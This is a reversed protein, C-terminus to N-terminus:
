LRSQIFNTEMQRLDLDYEKNRETLEKRFKEKLIEAQEKCDKCYDIKRRYLVISDLEFVQMGCIDCKYIIM